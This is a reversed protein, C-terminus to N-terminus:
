AYTRYHYSYIEQLNFKRYLALAPANDAMVQICLGTIQPRMQALLALIIRRAFGKGRLAEDTVVTELCLLGNHVAGYCSAAIRGEHKLSAFLCPIAVSEIIQRYTAHRLDDQKQLRCLAELWEETLKSTLVVQDDQASPISAIDGYFTLTSAEEVYGRQELLSDFAPNLISLVRFRPAQNKGRYFTECIRIIKDLDCDPGLPNASNVRRGTGNSSRLMWGHTREEEISPWARYCVDEIQWCLNDNRTGIM